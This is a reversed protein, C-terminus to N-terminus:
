PLGPVAAPSDLHIISGDGLRGHTNSGWCVALGDRRVACGDEGGVFPGDLSGAPLVRRRKKDWDRTGWCVLSGDSPEACFGVETADIAVVNAIGPVLTPPHVETDASGQGLEGFENHGWCTVEGSALVACFTNHSAALQRVPPIGITKVLGPKCTWFGTSVWTCAPEECLVRHAADLACLNAMDGIYTMAGPIPPITSPKFTPEGIEINMWTRVSGDGMRALFDDNARLEVVDRLGIERPAKDRYGLCTVGRDRRLFCPVDIPSKGFAVAVADHAGTLEVAHASQSDGWHYARGDRTVAWTAREGAAISVVDAVGVVPLPTSAKDRSPQGLNHDGWCVVSGQARLACSPTLAIADVLRPLVKPPDGPEALVVKGGVIAAVRDSDMVLATAGRLAALSAPALGMDWAGIHIEGSAHQSLQVCRAEGGDLIACADSYVDQDDAGGEGVAFLKVHELPLRREGCRVSGDGHTTCQMYGNGSISTVGRERPVPKPQSEDSWCTLKGGTRIACNPYGSFVALADDLKIHRPPKPDVGLDFCTIESRRLVCRGYDYGRVALADDIDPLRTSSAFEDGWCDVHGSKRTACVFHPAEGLDVIPDVPPPLEFPPDPVPLARAMAADRPPPASSGTGTVPESSGRCACLAMVALAARM